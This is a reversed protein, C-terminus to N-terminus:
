EYGLYRWAVDSVSASSNEGAKTAPTKRKIIRTFLWGLKRQLIDCKAETNWICLLIMTPLITYNAILILLCNNKQYIAKMAWFCYLEKARTTRMASIEQTQAKQHRKREPM